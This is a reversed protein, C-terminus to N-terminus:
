IDLIAAHPPPDFQDHLSDAVVEFVGGGKYEPHIHNFYSLDQSVIILHLLKEHTREFDNVSSGDPLKFAIRILEGEGTSPPSLEWDAKVHDSLIRTSIDGEDLQEDEWAPGGGCASMLLMSLILALMMMSRTAGGQM